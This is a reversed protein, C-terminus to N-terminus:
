RNRDDGAVFVVVERTVATQPPYNWPLPSSSSPLLLSFSSYQFVDQDCQLFRPRAIAPDRMFIFPPIFSTFIAEDHKHQPIWWLRGCPNMSQFSYIPIHPSSWRRLKTWCARLLMQRRLAVCCVVMALSLGRCVFFTQQPHFVIVISKLSLSYSVSLTQKSQVCLSTM